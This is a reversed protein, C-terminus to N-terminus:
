SVNHHHTPQREVWTAILESAGGSNSGTTRYVAVKDNGTETDVEVFVKCGTNWGRIHGCLGSKPTGQRTATGRSGELSGYFRSM